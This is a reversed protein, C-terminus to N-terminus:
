DERIYLLKHKSLEVLYIRSYKSQFDNPLCLNDFHSHSSIPFFVLLWWDTIDRNKENKQYEILKEEKIKIWKELIDWQAEEYFFASVFHFYSRSMNPGPHFSVKSIYKNNIISKDKKICAGIEKFLVDKNKKVNLTEPYCDRFHVYFSGKKGKNKDYIKAYNDLVEYLAKELKNNKKSNYTVVEMGVLKDNYPFILDPRDFCYKEDEAVGLEQLVRSAMHLENQQKSLNM